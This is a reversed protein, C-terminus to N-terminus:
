KCVLTTKVKPEIQAEERVIVDQLKPAHRSILDHLEKQTLKPKTQSTKVQVRGGSPLRCSDANIDQMHKVIEESIASKQERLTKLEAKLGKESTCLNVYNEVVKKFDITCMQQQEEM